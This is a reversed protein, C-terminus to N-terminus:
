GLALTRILATAGGGVVGAPGSVGADDEVGDEEERRHTAGEELADLEEEEPEELLEAEELLTTAELALEDCSTGGDELSPFVTTLMGDDEAGSSLPPNPLGTNHITKHATAASAM